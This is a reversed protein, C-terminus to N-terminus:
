CELSNLELHLTYFIIKDDNHRGVLFELNGVIFQWSEQCLTVFVIVNCSIIHSVQLVTQCLFLIGECLFNLYHKSSFSGRSEKMIAIESMWVTTHSDRQCRRTLGAYGKKSTPFLTLFAVLPTECHAKFHGNSVCSCSIYRTESRVLFSMDVKGIRLWLPLVLVAIFDSLM